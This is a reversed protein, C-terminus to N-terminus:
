DARSHVDVGHHVAPGSDHLLLDLAPLVVTFTSGEGLASEVTVAGGHLEAFKRVLSLGLGTGSPRRTNPAHIQRFEEFIVDHDGPAIGIGRDVVSISIADPLKRTVVRITSKDHSFKVANAVLNYVIQKLKIADAVISAKEDHLEVEIEIGRAITIGKLVRTISDLLERLPVMDLHLTMKGSEIKALDLIDNILVLLHEGSVSINHIFRLQRDTFTKEGDRQLVGAFGIIANLPTRLEHSVNALFINKTQNAAEAEVLADALLREQEKAADLAAKIERTRDEVVHVLEAERRKMLYVRRQMLLWVASVLLVLILLPFWITQTFRPEIKVAASAGERNWVGDANAAIVHFRYEGPPVGTYFAERRSGASVWDRDFGELRYLFEVKQPAVFTLAAYRIEVHQAGRPVVISADVNHVKGDISVSEIRVPPPRLRRAAAERPSTTAVGDVTAFWLRGDRSRMAAPFTSGNCEVSRAGDGADFVHSTVRTRKGAALENLERTDVSWIGRGGGFWLRGDRDELLQLVKDSSLGSDTTYRTFRGDKFRILGASDTGIWLTQEHDVLLTLIHMDPLGERDTWTQFKGDRYRAIGRGDAGIWISGDAGEAFAQV